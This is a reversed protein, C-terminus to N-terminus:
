YMGPFSVQEMETIASDLRDAISDLAQAAEEVATGKDGSQLNEPMNDHWEEMEEKLGEVEGVADQVLTAADALRDARSPEREIKRVVFSANPDIAALKKRLSAERAASVDGKFILQVTFTALRRKRNNVM